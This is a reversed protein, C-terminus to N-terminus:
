GLDLVKKSIRDPLENLIVQKEGSHNNELLKRLFDLIAPKATLNQIFSMIM